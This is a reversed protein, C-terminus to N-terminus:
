ESFIEFKMPFCSHYDKQLSFTRYIKYSLKYTLKRARFKVNFSLLFVSAAM